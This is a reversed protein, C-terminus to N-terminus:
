RPTRAYLTSSSRAGCTTRRAGAIVTLHELQDVADLLLAQGKGAGFAEITVMRDYVERSLAAMTHVTLLGHRVRFMEDLFTEPDGVHGATVKQELKWVENTLETTYAGMRTTLAALLAFSLEFGNHPFLKGSEMQGLVANVEVIATSPDVAATLRATPRLGAM